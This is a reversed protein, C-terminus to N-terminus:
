MKRTASGASKTLSSQAATGGAQPTSANEAHPPWAITAQMAVAAQTFGRFRERDEGGLSTSVPPASTPRLAAIASRQEQSLYSAAYSPQPSALAPGSSPAPPVSGRPASGSSPALPVSGLRSSDLTQKKKEFWRRDIRANQNADVSYPIGYKVLLEKFPLHSNNGNGLGFTRLADYLADENPETCKGLPLPIRGHTQIFTDINSITKVSKNARNHGPM